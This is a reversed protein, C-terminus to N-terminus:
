AICKNLQLPNPCDKVLHEYNDCNFCKVKSLDHKVKKISLEKNALMEKDKQPRLKGQGWKCKNCAKNGNSPSAQNKHIIESGTEGKPRALVEDQMCEMMKMLGQCTELIDIRRYVTKQVQPKFGHLFILKQVYEDKLPVMTLM